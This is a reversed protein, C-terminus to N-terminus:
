EPLHRCHFPVPHLLILHDSPPTHSPIRSYARSKSHFSQLGLIIPSPIQQYPFFVDGADHRGVRICSVIGTLQAARLSM